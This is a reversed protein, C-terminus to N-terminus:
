AERLSLLAAALADDHRLEAVDSPREATHVASIARRLAVRESSEFRAPLMRGGTADTICVVTDLDVDVEIRTGAIATLRMGGLSPAGPQAAAVVSVASGQESELLALVRGAWSETTLPALPGGAIVRAWGIADRLAPRLGRAPAHCEVAIAGPAPLNEIASEVAAVADARLLRREVVVPAAHALPALSELAEVPAAAPQAVVVAAAGASIADAVDAWWAGHGPVVVVAGEADSSAAASEPLEATAIRYADLDTRVPITM